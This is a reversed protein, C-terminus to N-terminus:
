TNMLGELARRLPLIISLGDDKVNDGILPSLETEENLSVEPDGEHKWIIVLFFNWEAKRNLIEELEVRSKGSNLFARIGRGIRVLEGIGVQRKALANLVCAIIAEDRSFKRHTGTGRKETTPYALIAAAEAWLQVSRRKGGTVKVLQALSFDM